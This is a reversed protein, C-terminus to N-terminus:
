NCSNNCHANQFLPSKKEANLLADESFDAGIISIEFHKKLAFLISGDGCGADLVREGHNFTVGSQLFYGIKDNAREDRWDSLAYSSKEQDNKWVLNWTLEQYNLTQM